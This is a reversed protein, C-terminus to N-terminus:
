IESGCHKCKIAEAKVEEACYPCKKSESAIEESDVSKSYIPQIAEVILWTIIPSILVTLFFFAGWSRGKDRARGAIVGALALNVAFALVFFLTLPADLGFVQSGVLWLLTLLCLGGVVLFIWNVIKIIWYTAL